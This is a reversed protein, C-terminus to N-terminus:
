GFALLRVLVYIKDAGTAVRELVKGQKAPNMLPFRLRDSHNVENLVQAPPFPISCLRFRVTRTTPRMYCRHPWPPSCAPQLSTPLCPRWRAGTSSPKASCRPMVLAWRAMPCDASAAWYPAAAEVSGPGM